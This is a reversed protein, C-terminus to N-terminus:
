DSQSSDRNRRAVLFIRALFLGTATVNYISPVISVVEWGDATLDSIQEQLKSADIHFSEQEFSKTM